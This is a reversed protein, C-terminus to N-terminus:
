GGTIPAIFILEKAAPDFETLAKPPRDATEPPAVVSYGPHGAEWLATLEGFTAPVAARVTAPLPERDKGTMKDFLAKAVAPEVDAEHHGRWSTIKLKM